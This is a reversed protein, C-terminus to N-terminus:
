DLSVLAPLLLVFDDDKWVRIGPITIMDAMGLGSLVLCLQCGIHLVQHSGSRSWIGGGSRCRRGPLSLLSSIYNKIYDSFLLFFFM